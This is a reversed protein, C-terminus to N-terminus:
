LSITSEYPKEKTMKKLNGFPLKGDGTGKEVFTPTIESVYLILYVGKVKTIVRKSEMFEGNTLFGTFCSKMTIELNNFLYNIMM